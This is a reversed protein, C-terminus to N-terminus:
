VIVSECHEKKDDSTKKKKPLINMDFNNPLALTYGYYSKPYGDM